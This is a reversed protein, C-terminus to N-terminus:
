QAAPTEAAPAEAGAVEVFTANWSGTAADEEAEVKVEQGTKLDALSSVGSFTADSKVMLDVKKEAGADDKTNLSLSNTAADVSAVTGSVTKAFATGSIVLSVALLVLMLMQIKKM